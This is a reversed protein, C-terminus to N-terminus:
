YTVDRESALMGSSNSIVCCGRLYPNVRKFSLLRKFM